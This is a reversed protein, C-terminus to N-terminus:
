AQGPPLPGNSCRDIEFGDACVTRSRWREAYEAVFTAFAKRTEAESEAGAGVREQIKWSILQIKIRERVDGRTFHSERLFEYYAAESKFAQKKLQALQRSVQRSSIRIGMEAAQGEIWVTDLMERFAIDKLKEYEDAGPRPTSSRGAAAASQALAHQFEIRTIRGLRVGVHAVVAVTSKPLEEPPPLTTSTSGAAGGSRAVLAFAVLLGGVGLRKLATEFM